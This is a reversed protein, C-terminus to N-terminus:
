ASILTVSCGGCIGHSRSGERSELCVPPTTGPTHHHFNANGGQANAANIGLQTLTSALNGTSSGGSLSTCGPYCPEDQDLPTPLPSPFHLSSLDPLSGGTNLSAPVGHVPPPSPQEPSSFISLVCPETVLYM